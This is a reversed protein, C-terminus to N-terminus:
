KTRCQRATPAIRGCAIADNMGSTLPGCATSQATEAAESETSGSALACNERGNFTVCVKCEVEQAKITSWVLFGVFGVIILVTVLRARTM